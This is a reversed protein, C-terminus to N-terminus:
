KKGRRDKSLVNRFFAEQKAAKAGLKGEAAEEHKAASIPKGQATGTSAHLGGPKFTIPKQGKKVPAITRTKPLAKKKPQAKM